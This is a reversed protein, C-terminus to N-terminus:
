LSNINEILEEVKDIHNQLLQWEFEDRAETSDTVMSKKIKELEGVIQHLCVGDPASM